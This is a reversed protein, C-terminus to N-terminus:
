RAPVARWRRAEPQLCLFRQLDEGVPRGTFVSYTYSDHYTASHGGVQNWYEAVVCLVLEGSRRVFVVPPPRRDDEPQALWGEIFEAVPIEGDLADPFAPRPPTQAGTLHRWLSTIRGPAALAHQYEAFDLLVTVQGAPDYQGAFDAVGRWLAEDFYMDNCGPVGTDQIVATRFGLGPPTLDDSLWDGPGADSVFSIDVPGAM